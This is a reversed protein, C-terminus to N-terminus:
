LRSLRSCRCFNMCFRGSPVRFGPPSRGGGGGVSCGYGPAPPAKDEESNQNYPSAVRRREATALRWAHAPAHVGGPGSPLLPSSTRGTGHIAQGSKKIGGPAPAICEVGHAAPFCPLRRQQHHPALKSALNWARLRVCVREWLDRQLTGAPIKPFPFGSLFHFAPQIKAPKVRETKGGAM